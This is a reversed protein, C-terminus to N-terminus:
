LNSLIVVLLFSLPIGTLLYARERGKRIEVWWLKIGKVGSYLINGRRTEKWTRALRSVFVSVPLLFVWAELVIGMGSSPILLVFFLSLVTWIFSLLTVGFDDRGERSMSFVRPLFSAAANFVSLLSIGAGYVLLVRFTTDATVPSLSALIEFTALYYCLFASLRMWVLLRLGTGPEGGSFSRKEFTADAM